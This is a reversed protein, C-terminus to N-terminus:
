VGLPRNGIIGDRRLQALGPPAPGATEFMGASIAVDDFRPAGAPLPAALLQQLRARVSRDTLVVHEVTEALSWTEGTPRLRWTRESVGDLADLFSRTSREFREVADAADIM